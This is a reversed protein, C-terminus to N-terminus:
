SGSAHRNGQRTIRAEHVVRKLEKKSPATDGIFQARHDYALGIVGGEFTGVRGDRENASENWAKAHAKRKADHQAIAYDRPHALVKGWQIPKRPQYAM